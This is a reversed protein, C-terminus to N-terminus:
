NASGECVTADLRTPLDRDLFLSDNNKTADANYQNALQRCSQKTASLEMRLRRLEAPDTENAILGEREVIQMTRSDYNAKTDFFGEYTSLINGTKFTSQVVRGPATAVATATNIASFVVPVGILLAAGLLVMTSTKM